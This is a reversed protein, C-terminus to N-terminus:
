FKSKNEEFWNRGYVKDIKKIARTNNRKIKKTQICGSCVIKFGYRSEPSNFDPCSRGVWYYTLNKSKVKSYDEAEQGFLLISSLMLTLVSFIRVILM